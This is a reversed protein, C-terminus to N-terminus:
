AALPKLIVSDAAFFFPSANPSHCKQKSLLAKLFRMVNGKGCLQEM